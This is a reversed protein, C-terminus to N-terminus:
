TNFNYIRKDTILYNVKKDHIDTPLHESLLESYCLGVSIGHFENLFRDYYGKGYGLRYGDLSFSLGPVLCVTGTNGFNAQSHTPPESIGYYGRTLEEQSGVFYFQMNGKKDLCKPFAVRKGDSFAKAIISDTSVESGLSSYVFITDCSKYLKSQLFSDCIIGSLEAKNELANRKVKLRHRLQTKMIM